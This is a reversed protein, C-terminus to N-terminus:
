HCSGFQSDINLCQLDESVRFHIFVVIHHVM